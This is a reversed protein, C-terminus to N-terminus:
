SNVNAGVGALAVSQETGKEDPGTGGVIVPFYSGGTSGKPSCVSERTHRPQGQTIANVPDDSHSLYRGM